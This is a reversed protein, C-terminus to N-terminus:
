LGVGILFYVTSDTQTIVGSRTESSASNQITIPIKQTFLDYKLGFWYWSLHYRAELAPVFNFILASFDLREQLDLSLRFSYPSAQPEYRLSAMQSLYYDDVLNQSAVGGSVHILYRPLRKFNFSGVLNFPKKITFRKKIGVGIKKLDISPSGGSGSFTAKLSTQSFEGGLGWTKFDWNGLKLHPWWEIDLMYSSFKNAKATATPIQPSWGGPQPDVEQNLRLFTFGGGLAVSLSEHDRVSVKLVVSPASTKPINAITRQITTTDKNLVQLSSSTVRFYYSKESPITVDHSLETTHITDVLIGFDSSESIELIYSKADLVATWEFHVPLQDGRRVYNKRIPKVFVPGPQLPQSSLNFSLPKSWKSYYPGRKARVKWYAPSSQVTDSKSSAFGGALEIPLTATYHLQSVAEVILPKEFDTSHSVALEYQTAVPVEKWTFLVQPVTDKAFTIKDEDAPLLLQPTELSLNRRLEVQAVESVPGISKKKGSILILAQVKWYFIQNKSIKIKQPPKEVYFKQIKKFDASTSFLVEYSAAYRVSKWKLELDRTALFEKEDTFNEEILGKTLPQPPIIKVKLAAPKSPHGRMGRIDHAAVRWYFLGEKPPFWHFEPKTITTSALIKTFEKDESIELFYATANEVEKWSLKAKQLLSEEAYACSIIFNFCQPHYSPPNFSMEFELIGEPVEPAPLKQPEQPTPTKPIQKEQAKDKIQFSFISSWPSRPRQELDLVRVRWFYQGELLTPTTLELGEVAKEFLIEKFNDKNTLQIHFKKADSTDQWKLNIQSKRSSKASQDESSESGPKVSAQVRDQKFENDKFFFAATNEPYILLPSKEEIIKFKFTSSTKSQATIKWFFLGQAPLESVLAQKEKLKKVLLLEKFNEDKSVELVFEDIQQTDKTNWKFIVPDQSQKWLVQNLSPVNLEIEYTKVKSIEGKSDLELAQNPTLVQKNTPSEVNVKGSIVAIEKVSGEEDFAAKIQAGEGSVTYTKKSTRLTMKQKSQIKTIITGKQMDLITNNKEIKLVVLTGQSLSIRSGDKLVLDAESDTGTFISDQQYLEQKLQLPQWIFDQNFKRRVDKVSREMLGIVELNQPGVQFVFREDILLALSLLFFVLSGVIIWRDLKKDKEDDKLFTMVSKGV